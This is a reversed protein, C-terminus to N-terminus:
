RWSPKNLAQLLMMVEGVGDGTYMVLWLLRQSIWVCIYLVYMGICVWVCYAYAIGALLM